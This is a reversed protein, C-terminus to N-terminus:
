KLDCNKIIENAMHEFDTLKKSKYLKKMYSEPIEYSCGLYSWTEKMRQMLPVDGPMYEKYGDMLLEHFTALEDRTAKDGGRAERLLSPHRLLGRGSMVGCDYGFAEDDASEIDGNYVLPLSTSRLTELFLERDAKGKYMEKRTRPHIILESIPFREYVELIKAWESADEVGIRTKVSIKMDPLASYIEDLLQELFKLDRLGGSGKLKSVVTGSPCGLNLNAETYGLKKFEEAAWIFYESKNAIVQPVLKPEDQTIDRKEKTQFSLNANPSIFPSFYKDAGGFVKDHSKRWVFGTLGELPAAYLSNFM